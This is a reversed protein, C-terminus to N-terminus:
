TGTQLPVQAPLRDTRSCEWTTQSIIIDTPDPAFRGRNRAEIDVDILNRQFYAGLIWDFANEVPSIINPHNPGL